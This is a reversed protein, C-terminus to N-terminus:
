GHAHRSEVGGLRREDSFIGHLRALDLWLDNIPNVNPTPNSQDGQGLLKALNAAQFFPEIM